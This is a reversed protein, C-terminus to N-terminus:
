LYKKIKNIKKKLADNDNLVIIDFKNEKLISLCLKNLISFNKISERNIYYRGYNRNNSRKICKNIDTNLHIILRNKKLFPARRWTYRAGPRRDEM